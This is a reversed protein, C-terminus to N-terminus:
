DRPWTAMVTKLAFQDARKPDDAALQEGLKRAEDFRGLEADTQVVSWRAIFVLQKVDDSPDSAWKSAFAPCEKLVQDYQKHSHWTSCRRFDYTRDVLTHDGPRADTEKRDKEIEDIDKQADAVGDALSRKERVLNDMQMQVSTFYMGGQFEKMYSEGAQLAQDTQKLMMYSFFIDYAALEHINVTYYMQVDSMGYVATADKLLTHYRFSMQDSQMVSMALKAKDEPTAAAALQARLDANIQASKQQNGADYMAMRKELADLADSSYTFDPDVQLSQKLYNVRDADSGSTLAMAYLKYAQLTKDTAPKRPPTFSLTNTATYKGDDHAGHAKASAVAQPPKEGLLRATIEDQLSFIDRMKGTAKATDLIVGTEVVVFRATIRMENGAKQFGGLVVTKAGVMKGLKAATSEETGTAGQLAMEAMAKDIQDREVVQMRGSKKLDSIMTEAIGAKLWDLSTDGNLNKFPMVAVPSPKAADAADTAPAAAFLVLAALLGSM